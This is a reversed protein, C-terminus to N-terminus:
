YLLGTIPDTRKLALELHSKSIWGKEYMLKMFEHFTIKEDLVPM